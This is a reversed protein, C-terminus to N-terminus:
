DLLSGSVEYLPKSKHIAYVITLLLVLFLLLVLGTITILHLILVAEQYLLLSFYAYVCYIYLFITFVFRELLSFLAWKDKSFFIVIDGIKYSFCRDADYLGALTAEYSEDVYSHYKVILESLLGLNSGM